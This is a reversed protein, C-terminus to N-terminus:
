STIARKLLAQSNNSLFSVQELEHAEAYKQPSLNDLDEHPREQNYFNVRDQAAYLFEGLTRYPRREAVALKFM